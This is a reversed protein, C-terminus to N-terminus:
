NEETKAYLNGHSLVAAVIEIGLKKNFRLLQHEEQQSCISIAAGKMGARGTRGVRHLYNDTQGPIDFNIIHTVGKIDLGRAAVDSALLIECKGKSFDYIAKARVDKACDGHISRTAIKHFELKEAIKSATANRHVFVIAKTPTIANILKRLVEIKEREECVLYYHSIDENVKNDSVFVRQLNNGIREAAQMADNKHTASVFIIQRDKLTTNIVSETRPLKDNYLLNDAEDIVIYKVQHMSLRRQRHLETIRDSSGIILQPKNKLKEIQRKIPGATTLVLSRLGIEGHQKLAQLQNQVQLCLEQTATLIVCQLENSSLDIKEVLPMLYALTKGTGTESSLYVDKGAIIEPLAALQVATPTTFHMKALANLIPQSLNMDEFNM